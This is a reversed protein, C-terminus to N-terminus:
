GLKKYEEQLKKLNEIEVAIEKNIEQQASKKDDESITLNAIGLGGFGGVFSGVIGGVLAGIAMGTPGGVAGIKFGLWAGGVAGATMSTALAIEKRTEFKDGPKQKKLNELKAEQMKIQINLDKKKKVIETVMSVNEPTNELNRTELEKKIESNLEELYAKQAEPNPTYEKTGIQVKGGRTSVERPCFRLIDGFESSNCLELELIKQSKQIFVSVEDNNIIGDNNKDVITAIDQLYLNKIYSIEFAM